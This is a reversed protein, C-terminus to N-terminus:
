ELEDFDTKNSLRLNKESEELFNKFKDDKIDDSDKSLTKVMSELMIVKDQLEVVQTELNQRDLDFAHIVFFVASSVVISIMIFIIINGTTKM